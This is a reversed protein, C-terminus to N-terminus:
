AQLLSKTELKEIAECRMFAFLHHGRAHQLNLVCLEVKDEIFFPTRLHSRRQQRMVFNYIGSSPRWLMVVAKPSRSQPRQFVVIGFFRKKSLRLAVVHRGDNDKSLESDVIIGIFRGSM